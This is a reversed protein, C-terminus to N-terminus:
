RSPQIFPYLAQERHIPPCREQGLALQTSFLMSECCPEIVQYIHM